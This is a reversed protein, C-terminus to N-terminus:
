VKNKEYLDKDDIVKERFAINIFYNIINTLTFGAAVLPNFNNSDRHMKYHYKILSTKAGSSLSKNTRRYSALIGPCKKGVRVKKLILCWLAYDNRKKLNPIEIHKVKKANYVVTLCGVSCGILMRLYTMRNPCKRMIKKPEGNANVYEYDSYCFDIGHEQMFSIQNKLKDKKWLDDSDLFAVYDGKAERIAVNRAISAGRDKDKLEIYKVRYDIKSIKKVLQITNDTSHDDVVIIEFNSYSGNRVSDIADEITLGSNHSPMVISVLPGDIKKM